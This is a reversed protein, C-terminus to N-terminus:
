ETDWRWLCKSWLNRSVRWETTEKRCIDKMESQPLDRSRIEWRQNNPFDILLKEVKIPSIENEGLFSFFLLKTFKWCYNNKYLDGLYDITSIKRWESCQMKCKNVLHQSINWGRGGIIVSPLTSLKCNSKCQPLPQVLRLKASMRFRIFWFYMKGVKKFIKQQVVM